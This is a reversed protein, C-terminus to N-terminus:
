EPNTIPKDIFWTEDFAKGLFRIAAPTGRYPFIIVFLM